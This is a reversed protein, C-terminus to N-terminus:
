FSYSKLLWIRDLYGIGFYKEWERVMGVHPVFWRHESGYQNPICYPYEIAFSGPFIGAPTSVTDQDVVRAYCYGFRVREWELNMTLPILYIDDSYGEEGHLVNVFRATDGYIGVYFTDYENNHDFLNQFVWVTRRIPDPSGLTDIITASAEYSSPSLSDHVDYVWRAGISNPFYESNETPATIVFGGSVSSISTDRVSSVRILAFPTTWKTPVVWDHMGNNQVSDFVPMFSRGADFSFAIRVPGVSDTSTWRIRKFSGKQWQDGEAPSTVVVSDTKQVPLKPPNNVSEEKKCSSMFSISLALAVLSSAKM